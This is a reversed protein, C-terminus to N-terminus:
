RKPERNLKERFTAVCTQLDEMIAALFIQGQERTALTPDGFSGSRSYSSSSPDHPTLPGQSDRSSPPSAEARDMDVIEPKLALMLATEVEDAHTGYSQRSSQAIAHRYREGFHVPLHLVRDSAVKALVRAIAPVTSVGTDLVLIHSADHRILAVLIEEIMTEFTSASLSVSGTYETFAPYHGYTVTPWILADIRDALRASLYEAAVQDTNMPLHFGHQKAGAGIPLMAVAGKALRAGVEDWTLHAVFNRKDHRRM